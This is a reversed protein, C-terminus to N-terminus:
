LPVMRAVPTPKELLAVSAFTRKLLPTGGATPLVKDTEVRRTAPCATM